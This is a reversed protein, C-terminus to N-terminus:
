TDITEQKSAFGRALRRDNPGRRAPGCFFFYDYRTTSATTAKQCGVFLQSLRTTILFCHYYVRNLFRKFLQYGTITAQNWQQWAHKGKGIWWQRPPCGMRVLPSLRSITKTGKTEECTKMADTTRSGFCTERCTHFWACVAVSCINPPRPVFGGGEIENKIKYM